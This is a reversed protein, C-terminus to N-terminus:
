SVQGYDIELPYFKNPKKKFDKRNEWHNGTKDLYLSKFQDITSNKSGCREVKNGGVTTGVRGWARYLWYSGVCFVHSISQSQFILM